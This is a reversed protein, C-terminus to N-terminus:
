DFINSIMDTTNTLRSERLLRVQAEMDSRIKILEVRKKDARLQWLSSLFTAICWVIPFDMEENDDFNLQLIDQTTISPLYKQIGHLLVTGTGQNSRCEFLAHSLSEVTPQEGRCHTCHPSHNPLIRAVREATPLIQHLLKFLFSTLSPGLSKQKYKIWSRKWVVQPCATEVRLPKLLHQGHHQGEPEHHTTEELMFRYIEKLSLKAVNLPSNEIRKITPFFDGKFYPPIDINESIDGLVHSRFLAEHFQNRTFKLSCATELFSSIQCALARQQVHLLGLGGDEPKRFLALEEPKELLDAYLWSKSQRMILSFDAARLDMTFCKLWLKSYAYCNLSHPRMTLPM